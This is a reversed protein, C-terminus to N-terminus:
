KKLSGTNARLADPGLEDIHFVTLGHGFDGLNATPPAAPRSEKPLLLDRALNVAPRGTKAAREHIKALEAPTVRFGFFKKRPEGM